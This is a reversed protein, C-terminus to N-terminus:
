SLLICSFHLVMAPWFTTQGYGQGAQSIAGAKNADNGAGWWEIDTRRALHDDIRQIVSVNPATFLYWCALSHPNLIAVGQFSFNFALRLLSVVVYVCGIHEM